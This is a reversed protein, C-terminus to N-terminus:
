AVEPDPLAAPDFVIDSAEFDGKRAVNGVFDSQNLVVRAVTIANGEGPGISINEVVASDFLPDNIVGAPTAKYAFNRTESHAVRATTEGDVIMMGDIVIADATFEGEAPLDANTLTLMAASVSAKGPPM